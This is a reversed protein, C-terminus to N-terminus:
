TFRSASPVPAAPAKAARAALAPRAFAALALFLFVVNGARM